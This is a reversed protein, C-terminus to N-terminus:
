KMENPPDEQELERAHDIQRLAYDSHLTGGAMGENLMRDVDVFAKERGEHQLDEKVEKM